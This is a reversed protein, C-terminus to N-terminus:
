YYPAPTGPSRNIEQDAEPNYPCGKSKALDVLRRLDKQRDLYARRHGADGGGHRQM